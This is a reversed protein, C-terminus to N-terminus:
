EEGKTRWMNFCSGGALALGQQASAAGIKKLHRSKRQARGNEQAINRANHTSPPRADVPTPTFPKPFTSFVKQLWTLSLFLFPADNIRGLAFIVL